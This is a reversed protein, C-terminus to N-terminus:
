FRLSVMLGPKKGFTPALLIGRGFVAIRGSAYGVAAGGIVDIWRHRGLMVRSSGILAAGFYWYPADAPHLASQVTAVAFAASTHGSPFSGKAGTDPRPADVTEKLLATVGTSLLLADGARLSRNWKLDKPTGPHFWYDGLLGAALFAVHFDNSVTEGFEHRTGEDQCVGFVAFLLLLGCAFVRM